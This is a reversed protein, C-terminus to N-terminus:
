PATHLATLVVDYDDVYTTRAHQTGAVTSLQWWVHQTISGETIGMLQNWTGGPGGVPGYCAIAFLLLDPAATTDIALQVTGSGGSPFIEGSGSGSGDLVNTTALGRWESLEVWVAGGGSDIMVPANSGDAVGFWIEITPSVRSSVARMWSAVGGGSVTKVGNEAGAIVVLVHSAMPASPFAVSLSSGGQGSAIVERVFPSSPADPGGPIADVLNAPADHPKATVPELDLLQQCGVLVVVVVVALRM